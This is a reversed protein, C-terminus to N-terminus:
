QPLLHHGCRQRCPLREGNFLFIVVRRNVELPVPKHGDASWGTVYELTSELYDHVLRISETTHATKLNHHTPVPKFVAFQLKSLKSAPTDQGSGGGGAAEIETKKEKFVGKLKERASEIEALLETREAEDASGAVAIPTYRNKPIRLKPRTPRPQDVGVLPNFESCGMWPPDMFTDPSVSVENKGSFYKTFLQARTMPGAVGDASLGHDSQFNKVARKTKPGTLGDVVGPDYKADYDRAFDKLIEQIVRLGWGEFTYLEEWVDAQNTIFAYVSKSRRESLHKNYEASGVQDTHGFILLKSGPHEEILAELEKMQGVYDTARNEDDKTDSAMAADHASGFSRIFSKNFEFKLDGFCMCALFQPPPKAAARLRVTYTQNPVLDRRQYRVPIRLPVRFELDETIILRKDPGRRYAGLYDRLFEDVLRADKTGFNFRAIDDATIPNGAQTEREAISELTDGEIPTYWKASKREDFGM